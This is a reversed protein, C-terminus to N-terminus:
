KHNQAQRSAPPKKPPAPELPFVDPADWTVRDKRNYQSTYLIPPHNDPRYGLPRGDSTMADRPVLPLYAPVLDDLNRPYQLGHDFRYLRIALEVAAARRAVAAEYFARIRSYITPEHIVSILRTTRFLSSGYPEEISPLKPFAEPWTAAITARAFAGSRVAGRAIDFKYMPLLIADEPDTMIKGLEATTSMYQMRMAFTARVDARHYLDETLLLAILDHAQQRYEPTLSASDFKSDRAVRHVIDVANSEMVMEILRNLFRAPGSEMAFSQQLLDRTLLFSERDDSQQHSYLAALHILRYLERQGSRWTRIAPSNEPYNWSASPRTAAQRALQLARRNASVTSAILQFQEPQLPTEIRNGLRDFQPTTVMAGAAQSFLIAANDADAVKAPEFDETLIPEGRAKADAVIAALKRDAARSWLWWLTSLLVIGLVMALALRKLWWFRRPPTREHSAIDATPLM